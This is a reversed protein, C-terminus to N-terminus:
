APRWKNSHRTLSLRAGNAFAVGIENHSSHCVTGPRWDERVMSPERPEVSLVSPPRVNFQVEVPDGIGIEQRTKM